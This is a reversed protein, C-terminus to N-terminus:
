RQAFRDTWQMGFLKGLRNMPYTSMDNVDQGQNRGECAFGPKASSDKWSWGLGAALLGGGRAVFREIADIESPAFNGWANGIILVDAGKLQTDDIKGATESVAYGWDTLDQPLAWDDSRTPLWECHGSTIRISAEDKSNALWRVTRQLFGESRLSVAGGIVRDHAVALIRGAKYDRAAALQVQETIMLPFWIEPDNTAIDGPVEDSILVDEIATEGLMLLYERQLLTRAAEAEASRARAEAANRESQAGLWIATAALAAFVTSIATLGGILLRQRAEARRRDRQWLDDFDVDMLGAALRACAREPGDKRVDLGLPEIPLADPDDPDGAARLAPPFCETEPDGSNPVGDIIVAFVKRARGTRRYHHIEANVWKSQASRPSCIVILSEANEIARRVIVGIDSAAAMDEEDRFFRGLRRNTTEGSAVGEPIRYTELWTHIRKGWAKDQQSYSIFARYHGDPGVLRTERAWAGGCGVRCFRGPFDTAM